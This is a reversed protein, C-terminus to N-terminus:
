EHPISHAGEQFAGVGFERCISIEAIHIEVSTTNGQRRLM